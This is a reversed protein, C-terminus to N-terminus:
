KCEDGLCKLGECCPAENNCKLGKDMCKITASEPNDLGEM